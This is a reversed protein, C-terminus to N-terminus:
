ERGAEKEQAIFKLKDCSGYRIESDVFQLKDFM